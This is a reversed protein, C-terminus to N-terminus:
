VPVPTPRPHSRQPSQNRPRRAEPISKARAGDRHTTELPPRMHDPRPDEVLQLYSKWKCQCAVAGKKRGSGKVNKSDGKLRTETSQAQHAALRGFLGGLVSTGPSQQTPKENFYMGGLTSESALSRQDRNQTDPSGRGLIQGNVQLRLARSEGWRGALPEMIEDIQLSNQMQEPQQVGSVIQRNASHEQTAYSKDYQERRPLIPRNKIGEAANKSQAGQVRSGMWGGKEVEQGLNRSCLLIPCRFSRSIVCSRSNIRWRKKPCSQLNPPRRAKSISRHHTSYPLSVELFLPKM